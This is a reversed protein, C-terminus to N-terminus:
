GVVKGDGDGGNDVGACVAVQVVRAGGGGDGGGGRQGREVAVVRVAVVRM